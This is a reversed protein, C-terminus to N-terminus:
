FLIRRLLVLCSAGTVLMAYTSPEPVQVIQVANLVSQNGSAAADSAFFLSEGGTLSVTFKAYNANESWNAENSSDNSILSSTLSGYDFTTGGLGDVGAYITFDLGLGSSFTNKSVVYIDYTGAALGSVRAGYGRGNFSPRSYTSTPSISTFVGSANSGNRTAAGIASNYDLNTGSADIGLDISVGTAASGDAFVLGTSVDSTAIDNWNNDANDLAGTGGNLSFAPGVTGGSNSDGFDFLISQGLSLSPTSFVGLLVGILFIIFKYM